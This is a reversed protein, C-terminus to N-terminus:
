AEVELIDNIIATTSCGQHYSLAKVQGGNAIVTDAGVITSLDYDGGKVLVDPILHNIIRAPTEESFPVVWDVAALGALVQMRKALSNIPRTPGKLTQVSEDSNVAVILRDGLAKAEKLYAVHGAHLIDFCGNTMVVTEGHAKADQVLQALRDEEVVGHAEGQSQTIARRLEAPTVAAAGLKTVSISAAINALRTADRFSAGSAISAALVAIVTDGAGTVDFVERAIAPLHLVPANREVLTMGQEGRTVLIASLDFDNIVAEAKSVLEEDSACPGVVAEFEKRNPTLLTAGRYPSFDSGKPDVLVPRKAARALQIFAQPDKIAGKHYDSLIVCQCEALRQQYRQLLESDDRQQNREEFDLRILQQHQSIIRLKLTTPTTPDRLLQADIAAESLSQLLRDGAADTGIVGLLKATAGLKQVNLAVNGAGGPLEQERQIKVVPVPAEPSIRSTAGHWYRDLMCDGVILLSLNHYEPLQM